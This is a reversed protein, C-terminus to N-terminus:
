KHCPDETCKGNTCVTVTCKQVGQSNVEDNGGSCAALLLLVVCSAMELWKVAVSLHSLGTDKLEEARARDGEKAAMRADGLAAVGNVACNYANFMKQENTM